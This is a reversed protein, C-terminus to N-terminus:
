LAYGVLAKLCALSNYVLTLSKLPQRKQNVFSVIISLM